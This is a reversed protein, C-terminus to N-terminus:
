WYSHWQWSTLSGWTLRFKNILQYSLQVLKKLSTIWIWSSRSLHYSTSLSLQYWSLLSIFCLTGKSSQRLDSSTQCTPMARKKLLVLGLSRGSEMERFTILSLIILFQNVLEKLTKAVDVGGNVIRYENAYYGHFLITVGCEHKDLPFKYVDLTCIVSTVTSLYYGVSGTHNIQFNCSGSPNQSWFVYGLVLLFMMQNTTSWKMRMQLPSKQSGFNPKHSTSTLSAEM